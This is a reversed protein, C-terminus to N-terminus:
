HRRMASAAGGHTEPLIQVLAERIQARGNVEVQIVFRHEIALDHAQIGFAPGLEVFQEPPAPTPVHNYPLSM